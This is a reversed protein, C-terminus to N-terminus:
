EDAEGTDDPTNRRTPLPMMRRPPSQPPPAQWGRDALIDMADTLPIRAIGADRDVWAFGTLQDRAARAREDLREAPDVLLPPGQRELIGPVRPVAPPPQTLWAIFPGAAFSVAVVTVLFAVGAVIVGRTPADRREVDRTGGTEGLRHEAM